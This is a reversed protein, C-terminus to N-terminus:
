AAAVALTRAPRATPRAGRAARIHEVATLWMLTSEAGQNHNIGRRTLGDYGGGRDPEAVALSLDNGGLFWAYCREMASRYRPESTAEFAAEAALLLATAEIPQQDLTSKMGDRPWWGNGIPSFHGDPAVQHDILWDLVTLGTAVMEDSRLRRGVVILARPLLGNEYTVIREPWPWRQEEAEKFRAHFSRALARFPHPPASDPASGIVASWGLLTSAQARLDTLGQGAPLAREFLTRATAVMRDDPAIAIVEGLSLMARGHSDPSGPGETWTRDIARFNRFRGTPPDLAEVLFRLSREASGAIAAWGLERQHLLDVQLARAVDDTCYGHAPDGRRGIAHQMIGVADTMSELHQRNVPVLPADRM